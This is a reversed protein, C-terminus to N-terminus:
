RECYWEWEAHRRQTRAWELATNRHHGPGGGLGGGNVVDRPTLAATGQQGAHRPRKASKPIEICGRPHYHRTCYKSKAPAEPAVALVGFLTVLVVILNREIM